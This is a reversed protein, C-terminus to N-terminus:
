DGNIVDPEAGDMALLICKKIFPDEIGDLESELSLLGERRAKDSLRVFLQVLERLSMDNKKFSEQLVRFTVKMETLNFNVMLAAFLGGIAILISAADAFPAAGKVGASSIIGFMVMVIGLTIGIPTLVDRKNM